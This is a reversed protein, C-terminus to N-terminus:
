AIKVQLSYILHIKDETFILVTFKIILLSIHLYLDYINLEKCKLHKM